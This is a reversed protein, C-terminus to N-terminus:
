QILAMTKESILFPTGLPKKARWAKFPGIVWTGRVETRAWVHVREDAHDYGYVEVGQSEAYRVAETAASKRTGRVAEAGARRAAETATNDLRYLTSFYRGTDNVIAGLVFLVLAIGLIRRM